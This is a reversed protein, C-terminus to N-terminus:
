HTHKTHTSLTSLTHAQHTHKTYTHTHIHTYGGCIDLRFRMYLKTAELVWHSHKRAYTRFRMNLGEKRAKTVTRRGHLLGRM